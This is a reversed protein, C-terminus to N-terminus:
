ARPHEAQWAAIVEDDRKRETTEGSRAAPSLFKVWVYALVAVVLAAVVVLQFRDMIPEVDEWRDRLLYGAGIQVTNWVLSGLFTYLSFTGLPMRGFGAPFSVFARVVPVCRGILVAAQGRRDFWTESREVDTVSLRAWRGWRAVAYHLREQGIWAAIGYLVYAGLMSGATAALIMGVLSADGDSAVFGAFPLVAESPIPPFVSEIAVLLAVGVYGVHDIVDVVWETLDGLM